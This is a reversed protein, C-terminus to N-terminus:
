LVIMILIVLLFPLLFNMKIMIANSWVPLKEDWGITYNKRKREKKLWELLPKFYQILPEASIESSGTYQKLIEPWKKSKGLELMKRLKQGAEKSNELSCLHLPGEYGADKCAQAYFSFQFITSFFYRIYPIDWAIHFKAAGDLDMDEGEAPPLIGQYKLRLEWWKRNYDEPKINGKFIEWRWIDMLAGYPLFAITRLASTMLFNLNSATSNNAQDILGISKLYLPTKASLMLADGIAEHFGPNAGQRFDFPLDAYFMFYYVHGLEHHVTNFYYENVTGCMTMRIDPIDDFKAGMDYAAPQCIMQINEPQTFVSRKWFSESLKPWGLSVFFKEAIRIIESVNYNKEVLKPTVQIGSEDPFPKVRNALAAWNTTWLNGLLHAPIGKSEDILDPYTETLRHRIYGHLEEYMPKLESWFKLVVEELDDVEYAFKRFEAENPFGNDRAGQNLLSVM